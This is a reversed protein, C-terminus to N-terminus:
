FIAGRPLQRNVKLKEELVGFFFSLPSIWPQKGFKSKSFGKNFVFFDLVFCQECVAPCMPHNATQKVNTWNFFHTRKTNCSTNFDQSHILCNRHFAMLWPPKQWNSYFSLHLLQYNNRSKRYWQFGVTVQQWSLMFLFSIINDHPDFMAVNCYQSIKKGVPRCRTEHVTKKKGTDAQKGTILSSNKEM